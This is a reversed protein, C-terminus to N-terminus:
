RPKRGAAPELERQLADRIPTLTAIAGLYNQAEVQSRAEQVASTATKAASRLREAAQGGLRPGAQGALRLKTSELQTEVAAILQEAQSRNAAKGDAARRAAEYSSELADIALRLAQRYDGQGVATDYQALSAEAAALQAPAYTAAGAARAAALAGEAQQREKSPPESCALVAAAFLAACVLRRRM